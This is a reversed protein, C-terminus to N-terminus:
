QYVLVVPSYRFFGTTSDFVTTKRYGKIKEQLYEPLTYERGSTIIIIPINFDSSNKITIKYYEPNKYVWTFRLPSTKAKAPPTIKEYDYYIDKDTFFDLIPVSVAPNITSTKSPITLVEVHSAELTDIYRGANMLNVSATKQLFPLYVFLAIVLSSVVASLVVFRRFEVNKIEQLGYAAMLTLMPFLPLIYRIRKISLLIILFVLWSIIAYKMDKKKIAAYLSYLAALTIFPHMQFFFTSTFSESWGKLAPKQYTMLLNIQEAILDFKSFIVIGILIGAFLATLSANKICRTRLRAYSVNLKRGLPTLLEHPKILCIIFAVGLVSLLMWTSYKSFVALFIAMSSIFVWKGGNKLAMIFAYLSFTLFSMTAIDVLMLPTQVLLYPIASLLLGAHLGTDEDWLTKGLLYTCVTTMAFLLMTFIQIYVRNEGFFKFILGYLFPLLPLDTWANIDGGWEKLFYAVGYESLHKAQTFYRSVDVVAEPVGWLLYCVICSTATLFIIPHREQFSLRSLGYATIVGFILIIFISSVDVGAFAWNWSTLRNDDAQRFIYLSAFVLLPSLVILIRHYFKTLSSSSDSM